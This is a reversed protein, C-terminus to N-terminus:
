KNSATRPSHSNKHLSINSRSLSASLRKQSSNLSSRSHPSLSSLNTSRRGGFLSTGRRSAGLLTTSAAPTIRPDAKGLLFNSNTTTWWVIYTVFRAVYERVKRENHLRALLARAQHASYSTSKKGTKLSRLFAITRALQDASRQLNERNEEERIAQLIRGNEYLEQVVVRYMHSKADITPLLSRLILQKRVISQQQPVLDVIKVASIAGSDNTVVRHTDPVTHTYLGHFFSAFFDGKEEKTHVTLQVPKRKSPSDRSPTLMNNNNNHVPKSAIDEANLSAPVKSRPDKSKSMSASKASTPTATSLSTSQAMAADDEPVVLRSPSAFLTPDDPHLVETAEESHDDDDDDSDHPLMTPFAALQSLPDVVRSRLRADVQSKEEDVEELRHRLAALRERLQEARVDENDALKTFYEECPLSLWEDQLKTEEYEAMLQDGQTLIVSETLGSEKTSSSRRGLVKATLMGSQVAMSLRHALMSKGLNTSQRSMHELTTTRISRTRRPHQQGSHRLESSAMSSFHGSSSSMSKGMPSGQSLTPSGMSAAAIEEDVDRAQQPRPSMIREPKAELKFQPRTPSHHGSSAAGDEQEDEGISERHIQPLVKRKFLTDKHREATQALISGTDRRKRGSSGRSPPVTTASTPGEDSESPPAVARFFSKKSKLAPLVTGVWDDDLGQKAFQSRKRQLSTHSNHNNNAPHNKDTPSTPSRPSRVSSADLVSAHMPADFGSEPDVDVNGNNESHTMAEEGTVEDDDDDEDGDPIGKMIAISKRVLKQMGLTRTNVHQSKQLHFVGKRSTAMQCESKLLLVNNWWFSNIEVNWSEVCLNSIDELRRLLESSEVTTHRCLDRLAMCRSYLSIFGTSIHLPAASNHQELGRRTHLTVTIGTTPLILQQVVENNCNDDGSPRRRQILDYASSGCDDQNRIVGIPKRSMLLSSWARCRFFQTWAMVAHHHKQFFERREVVRPDEAVSSDDDEDSENSNKKKIPKARERLSLADFASKAKECCEFSLHAKGRQVWYNAWNSHLVCLFTHLFPGKLGPLLKSTVQTKALSLYRYAIDYMRHLTLQTGVHLLVFAYHVEAAQVQYDDAQFLARRLNVCHMLRVVADEHEGKEFMDRARTNSQRLADVEHVKNPHARRLTSYYMEYQGLETMLLPLTASEFETTIVGELWLATAPLRMKKKKNERELNEREEIFVDTLRRNGSGHSKVYPIQTRTPFASM